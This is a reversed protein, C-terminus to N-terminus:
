PRAPLPACSPAPSRCPRCAARDPRAALLQEIADLVHHVPAPPDPMKGSRADCRVLDVSISSGAPRCAASTRPCSGRLDDVRDSVGSSFCPAPDSRSRARRCRAAATPSQRRGVLAHQRVLARHLLAEGLDIALRGLQVDLDLRHLRLQDGDLVVVPDRPGLLLDPGLVDALGHAVHARRDLSSRPAARCAARPSRRHGARRSRPPRCRRPRARSSSSASRARQLTLQRDLLARHHAQGAAIASCTSRM